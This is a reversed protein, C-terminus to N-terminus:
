QKELLLRCVLHGRSQLESTHEESRVNTIEPFYEDLIEIVIEGLETPVFRRKQLSVYGRRQITDLTPAYTSPRGIGQKELTGVLTAETYRAPPQTFHQNPVLEKSQVVDGVVLDPLISEEKEEKKDTGEVYVRMFGKFKITSGTARFEVKDQNLHATVTDMIAPAM